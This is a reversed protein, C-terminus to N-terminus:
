LYLDNFSHTLHSILVAVLHWCNMKILRTVSILCIWEFLKNIWSRLLSDLWQNMRWGIRRFTQIIWGILCWTSDLNFWATVQKSNNKNVFYLCFRIVMHRFHLYNSIFCWKYFQQIFDSSKSIIISLNM